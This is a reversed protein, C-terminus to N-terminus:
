EPESDSPEKLYNPLADESPMKLLDIVVDHSGQENAAQAVDLASQGTSTKQQGAGDLLLFRVARHDGVHAAMHIDRLEEGQFCFALERAHPHLRHCIRMEEVLVAATRRLRRVGNKYVFPSVRRRNGLPSCSDSQGDESDDEVHREEGDCLMTPKKPNAVVLNGIPM